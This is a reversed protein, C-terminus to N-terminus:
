TIGRAAYWRQVSERIQQVQEPTVHQNEGGAPHIPGCIQGTWGHQLAYPTSRNLGRPHDAEGIFKVGKQIHADALPEIWGLHGFYTYQIFFIETGPWSSRINDFLSDIYLGACPKMAFFLHWATWTEGHQKRLIDQMRMTHSVSRDRVWEVDRADSPYSQPVTGFKGQFDELALKNFYDASQHLKQEGGGLEHLIVQVDDSKFHDVAAQLFEAEANEADPSWPTYYDRWQTGNPMKPWWEDPVNEQPFSTPLTLISKMGLARTREVKRDMISWDIPGGFVPQATHWYSQHMIVTAGSDRVKELDSQDMEGVSDLLPSDSTAVELEHNYNCIILPDKPTIFV